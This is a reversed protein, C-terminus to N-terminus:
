YPCKFFWKTFITYVNIFVISLIYLLPIFNHWLFGIERFTCLFGGHLLSIKGTNQLWRTIPLHLTEWALSYCVNPSQLLLYQFKSFSFWTRCNLLYPPLLPVCNFRWEFYSERLFMILQLRCGVWRLDLVTNVNLFVKGSNIGVLSLVTPISSGPREGQRSIGRALM